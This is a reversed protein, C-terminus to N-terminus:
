TSALTTKPHIEISIVHNPFPGITNATERLDDESKKNNFSGNGLSTFGINHTAIFRLFNM